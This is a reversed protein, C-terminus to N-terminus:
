TRVTLFLAAVGILLTAGELQVSVGHLRDFEVRLPSDKPTAAVSGMETRLENMRRIVLHQSIITLMVMIMVGLVPLILRKGAGASTVAMAASALLFLLGAIVGLTHLRRLTFEVLVGAQDQSSLVRFAGPAVAASFYFISGLWTGLAFVQVFRLISTM